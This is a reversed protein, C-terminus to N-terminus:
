EASEARARLGSAEYVSLWGGVKSESNGRWGDRFAWRWYSDKENRLRTQERESTMLHDEIVCDDHIIPKCGTEGSPRWGKSIVRKTEAGYAVSLDTDM